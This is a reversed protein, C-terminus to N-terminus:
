SETEDYEEELESEELYDLCTHGETCRWRYTVFRRTLPNRCCGCDLQGYKRVWWWKYSHVGVISWTAGLSYKKEEGTETDVWTLKRTALIKIRWPIQRVDVWKM